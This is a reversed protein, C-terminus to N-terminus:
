EVAEVIGSHVRFCRARQRFEPSFDEWDTTTVIAQPVDDIVTLLMNRREADLESMVDDLLL